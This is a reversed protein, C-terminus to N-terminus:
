RGGRPERHRLPEPTKWGFRLSLLRVGSGTTVGLAASVLPPLAVARAGVLVLIGALAALAYPEGGRLVAPVERQLVDRVVGGGVAGLVGLLVAPAVAVDLSLCRLTGAVAFWGLGVADVLLIARELQAGQHQGWFWCVFVASSVALLYGPNQFALPLGRGLLVDRAVSGGLGAAFALGCMGVIDFGPTRRAALAGSLAGSFVAVLEIVPVIPFGSM